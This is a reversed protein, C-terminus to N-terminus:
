SEGNPDDEGDIGAVPEMVSLEDLLGQYRQVTRKLEPLYEEDLSESAPLDVRRSNVPRDDVYLRYCLHPGTALGTQGVYGIVQGQEVRTGARIGSAFGNLHLYASRYSSNHRIQVINGNGGRYQAETVVGDGVALIPTGTPAAYDTGYHPRNERLIPHFRNNSFGSSVRQSYRFPAMLLAKELSNGNEDFYGRREENEFHYANYVNGRHQFEAAKIDGVGIFQDGAYRQEYVVKFHDGERLLFFDVQWAFVNAMAAGLSSPNGEAVITEYLSSRIVGSAESLVTRVPVEGPEVLYEDEWGVTVYRTASPQWVFAVADDEKYYIRYTQGPVIRSLNAVGESSQQIQYIQAPSLNHRRLIIYLSENRQVRFEEFDYQEIEFGYEDTPPVPQIENVTDMTILFESNAAEADFDSSQVFIFRIAVVVLTLAVVLLLTKRTQIQM